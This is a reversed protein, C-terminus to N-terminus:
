VMEFGPQDSGGVLRTDPICEIMTGDSFNLEPPFAWKRSKSFCIVKTKQKNIVM